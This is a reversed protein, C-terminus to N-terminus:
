YGRVASNRVRTYVCTFVVPSSLSIRYYILVYKYKLGHTVKFTKLDYIKVLGDLGGSLLRTETGDLMMSTITKQHNSFENLLKGGNLIDWVQDSYLVRM